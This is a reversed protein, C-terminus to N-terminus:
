DRREKEAKLVKGDEASVEYEYELKGAEFEIEYVLGNREKDLEVKYRSIENENLGAHKLAAAKAEDKTVKVDAVQQEPAKLTTTNQANSARDAEREKEAKLVKGNEANVTYDYEYGNAYFEIEYVAASREKDVEVKYHKVDAAKVGAHKLAVAKAEDKTVKLESVQAPPVAKESAKQTLKETPENNKKEIVEKALPASTSKEPEINKEAKEQLTIQKQPAQAKLAQQGSNKAFGAILFSAAVLVAVLLVSLKKM